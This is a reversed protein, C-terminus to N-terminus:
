STDLQCVFGASLVTEDNVFLMLFANVFLSVTSMLRAGVMNLLARQCHISGTIWFSTHGELRGGLV